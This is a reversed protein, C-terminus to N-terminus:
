RLKGVALDLTACAALYSYRAATAALEASLQAFEAQNLEVITGLGNQYRLRTMSYLRRAQAEQKESLGIQRKANAAEAYATRVERAVRLELLRVEQAAGAARSVAEQRRADLTRGNFIPINLNVGLAGYRPRLRPDGAPIMGLVGTASLNPYSLRRESDAFQQAAALLRRQSVADPRSALAERVLGEVEAPLQYDTAVEELAYTKPAPLGMTTTLIAEAASLEGELRAAAVEADGLAVEAFQLDLTSRLSNDVLAQIQKRALTRSEVAARAVNLSKQLALVRLFAQRVEWRLESRAQDERAGHAGVRTAASEALKSTRGFDYITQNVAIGAAFRSFLGPANVGGAGIVSNHDAVSSTVSASVFPQLLGKAQQVQSRAAATESAASKLRPHQSIAIREAEELTLREQSWGSSAGMVALFVLTPQIRM